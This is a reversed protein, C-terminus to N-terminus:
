FDQKIASTKTITKIPSIELIRQELETLQSSIRADIAGFDTEVICGGRDVSSDEVVSINKINEVAQIFDNTHESTLEVDALNVRITVDGRGKVKRLAQVINNMVVTRQNESIVKVVKRTMLLVLDVIQQETEDLIEQRRDMTKDIILHLRDVLRLAEKNGDQFGAENGKKYGEDYAQAMQENRKIEAEQLLDLAKQEAEKVIQDAETLAKQKIIAAEDTNRKVVQFATNEANDVIKKAEAETNALLQQKEVEWQMKFEEAERRLDEATPGTYEPEEEEEVEEVEPAFSKTLQLMVKEESNKIEVPRFVSKSM